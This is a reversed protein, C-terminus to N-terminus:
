AGHKIRELNELDWSLEMVQFLAKAKEFYQEAHIGNL